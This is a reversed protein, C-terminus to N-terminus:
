AWGLKTLILEIVDSVAGVAIFVLALVILWTGLNWLFTKWAAERPDKPLPAKGLM